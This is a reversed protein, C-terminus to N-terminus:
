NKFITRLAAELKVSPVWNLIKAAKEINLVSWDIPIFTNLPAHTKTKIQKGSYNQILEILTKLDTGIGSGINITTSPAKADILLSQHFAECVDDILIFDRIQNLPVFLNLESNTKICNHIVDIIGQKKNHTFHNGFPNAIRLSIVSCIGLQAAIEFQKEIALKSAGYLSVPNPVDTERWPTKLNSIGYVTGGSSAYIVKIPKKRFHHTSQVANLLAFVSSLNSQTPDLLEWSLPTNPGGEHPLYIVADLDSLFTILQKQQTEDHTLKFSHWNSDTTVENRTQLSIQYINKQALHHILNMGLFGSAGIIGIKM